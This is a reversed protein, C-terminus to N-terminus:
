TIFTYEVHVELLKAEGPPISVSGDSRSLLETKQTGSLLFVAGLSFGFKLIINLM